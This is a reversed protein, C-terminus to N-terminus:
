LIQVSRIFESHNPGVFPLNKEMWKWTKKSISYSNAMRDSLDVYGICTRCEEMILPKVAEGGERLNGEAPAIHM